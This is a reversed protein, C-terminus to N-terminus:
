TPRTFPPKRRAMLELEDWTLPQQRRVGWTMNSNPLRFALGVGHRPYEYQNKSENCTECLICANHLQRLEADSLGYQQQKAVSVIHDVQFYHRQMNSFFCWECWYGVCGVPATALNRTYAQEVVDDPFELSDGAANTRAM